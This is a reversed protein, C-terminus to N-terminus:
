NLSTRGHWKWRKTSSVGWGDLAGQPISWMSDPFDYVLGVALHEGLVEHPWPAAEHGEAEMRLRTLDFYSRARVVPFLDPKADEFEEPMERLHVFWNARVAQIKERREAPASCYEQYANALFIVTGNEGEGRLRFEDARLRNGRDRGGQPHHGDDAPRVPRQHAQGHPPEDTTTAALRTQAAPM